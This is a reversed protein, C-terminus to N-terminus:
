KNEFILRNVNFGNFYKKVDTGTMFDVHPIGGFFAFDFGKYDLNDFLKNIASLGSLIRIMIDYDREGDYIGDAKVTRNEAKTAVPIILYPRLILLKATNDCHTRSSESHYEIENSLQPILQAIGNDDYYCENIKSAYNSLSEASKESTEAFIVSKPKISKKLSSYDDFKLCDRYGVFTFTKGNLNGIDFSELNNNAFKKLNERFDYITLKTM